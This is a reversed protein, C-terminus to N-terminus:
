QWGAPTQTIKWTIRPPFAGAPDATLRAPISALKRLTPLDYLIELDNTLSEHFTAGMFQAARRAEASRLDVITQTDHRASGCSGNAVALYHLECGAEKLLMMTGAMLFEIDDPHAVVALVRDAM